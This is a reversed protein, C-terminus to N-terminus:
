GTKPMQAVATNAAMTQSTSATPTSADVAQASRPFSISFISGRPTASSIWVKGGWSDVTKRIFALGLGSGDTRASLRQFPEFVQERQNEPIGPGDDQVQLIVQDAQTECRVSIRGFDKDHHKIANNLLNRMVMEFATPNVVLDPIDDQITIQFGTRPQAVQLVEQLRLSPSFRETTQSESETTAYVSLDQILRLMQRTVMELEQWNDQVEAPLTINASQLDETIFELLNIQNFLPTKLDHAAIATFTRLKENAAELTTAQQRILDQQEQIHTIDVRITGFHNKGLPMDTAQFVRGDDMRVIRTKNAGSRMDRLVGDVHAATQEMTWDNPVTGNTYSRMLMDRMNEGAKLSPVMKPFVEEFGQNWHVARLNKDFIVIAASVQDLAGILLQDARHVRQLNESRRRYIVARSAFFILVLLLAATIGVFWRFAETDFMSTDRGYWKELLKQRDDASIENRLVENLAAQLATKAPPLLIGAPSSTLAPELATVRTDISLERLRKLLNAPASVVADLDGSLLPIVMDDATDFEVITVGPIAKARSLSFSGKVAGISGGTLQEIQTIDSEKVVFANIEFDFVPDTAITNELRSPSLAMMTTADARGDQLTQLQGAPNLAPIFRVDYGAKGAILRFLDIAYGRAIGDTDTFAYPNSEGYSVRIPRTQAETGLPLSIGLMLLLSFCM